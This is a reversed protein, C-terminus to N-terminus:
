QTFPAQIDYESLPHASTRYCKPNLQEYINIIFKDYNIKMNHESCLVSIIKKKQLPPPIKNYLLRVDDNLNADYKNLLSM